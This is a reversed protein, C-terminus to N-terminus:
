EVISHKNINRAQGDEFLRLDQYVLKIAAPERSLLRSVSKSVHKVVTSTM